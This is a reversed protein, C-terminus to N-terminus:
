AGGGGWSAPISAYNSRSTNNYFCNNYTTIQPETNWWDPAINTISNCYYFTHGVNTVNSVDWNSIDLTTLSSCHLVLYYLVLDM